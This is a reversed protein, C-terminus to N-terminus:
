SGALGHSWTKRVQMPRSAAEQHSSLKCRGAKRKTERSEPGFWTALSPVVCDWSELAARMGPQRDAVVLSLRGGSGEPLGWRGMPSRDTHEDAQTAVRGLTLYM